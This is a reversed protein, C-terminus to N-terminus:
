WGMLTGVTAENQEGIRNRFHFYGRVEMLIAGLRNQGKGECRGWYVDGWTNGEVLMCAGTALLSVRLDPNQAFREFVVKRMCSDKIADWTPVDIKIKRGAKKALGPTPQSLVNEAEARVEDMTAGKIAFAKFAQYGHEGTLCDVDETPFMRVSFPDGEHFNSLFGFEGPIDFSKVVTLM